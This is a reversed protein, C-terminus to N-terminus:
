RDFAPLETTLSLSVYRDPLLLTHYKIIRRDTMQPFTEDGDDMSPKCAVVM